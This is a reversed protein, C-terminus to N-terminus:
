FPNLGCKLTVLQLCIDADEISCHGSKGNRMTIGLYEQALYELSYRYPFGKFHPYLISTDIINEHCIHLGKLDSHLGHGILITDGSLFGCVLDYQVESLTKVNGYILDEPRIGSFQTNYDLVEYNPAVFTDYVLGKKLSVLSVRAVEMGGPTYVFECDLALINFNDTSWQKTIYWYGFLSIFSSTHFASSVCGPSKFPKGCCKYLWSNKDLKLPHYRCNRAYFWNENLLSVTKQCRCKQKEINAEEFYNNGKVCLRNDEGESLPFGVELLTERPHVYKVLEYYYIDPRRTMM